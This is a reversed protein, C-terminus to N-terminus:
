PCLLVHVLPTERGLLGALLWSSGLAFPVRPRVASDRGCGLSSFVSERRFWAGGREGSRGPLSRDGEPTEPSVESSATSQLERCGRGSDGFGGRSTTAPAPAKFGAGGAGPRQRAPVWRGGGAPRCAPSPATRVPCDSLAGPPGATWHSRVGAGRFALGSVDRRGSPKCVSVAWGPGGCFHSKRPERRPLRSGWRVASSCM